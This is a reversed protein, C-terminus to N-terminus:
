KCDEVIRRDLTIDVESCMLGQVNNIYNEVLLTRSPGNSLILATNELSKM